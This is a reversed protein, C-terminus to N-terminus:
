QEIRATELDLLSNFYKEYNEIIIEWSYITQIIHINNEIKSSFDKKYTSNIIETLESISSFAFGDEGVIAANFENNHYAILSSSGMAELLSPNTGGVTHGHFYLNSYFRLNQLEEQDYIAGLFVIRSDNSYKAFM